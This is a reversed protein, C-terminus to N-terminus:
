GGVLFSGVIISRRVVVVVVVVAAAERGRRRTAEEEEVESDKELSGWFDEEKGWDVRRM